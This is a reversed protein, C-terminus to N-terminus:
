SEFRPQHTTGLVTQWTEATLNLQKRTQAVIKNPIHTFHQNWTGIVANTKGAMAAHVACQGLLVCFESDVANAPLSRITYSPDIYKITLPVKKNTFYDKIKKTLFPGVDKLKINGSPDREQPSDEILDQGAGEGVVILAHNRRALRQELVPLLGLPGDLRFPVEPVLCFNVNATALTAHAAIFGSHRGMLKVLGVGNFASAAEAHAANLVERAAEVATAFGFSREIWSLDNDITKPISIVAIQLDRRKIEDALKSAGQLTGEGGIAFLMNISYKQLTDVMEVESQPGRSSGLVTGPLDQINRITDANLDLPPLPSSSSLGAFGYRFGWVQKVGYTEIATLTISRIVHNLGPCLGGCTIVGCRVENPNFFIRARAGALEFSPIETETELYPTLDQTLSPLIVRQYDRIFRIGYGGLPSETTCPGLTDVVLDSPAPTNM